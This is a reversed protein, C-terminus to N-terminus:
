SNPANVSLAILHVPNRLYELQEATLTSPYVRSHLIREAIPTKALQFLAMRSLYLSNGNLIKYKANGVPTDLKVLIAPAPYDDDVEIEEPCATTPGDGEYIAGYLRRQVNRDLEVPDIGEGLVMEYNSIDKSEYDPLGRCFTLIPIQFYCLLHDKCLLQFLSKVNPMVSTLLLM